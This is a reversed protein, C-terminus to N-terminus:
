EEKCSKELHFLKPPKRQYVAVKLDKWLKETQDFDPSLRPWELIDVKNRAFWEM